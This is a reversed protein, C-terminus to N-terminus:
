GLRARVTQVLHDAVERITVDREGEVMIRLVPETGSYRVLIRGTGNLRQEGAEIAQRIEPLGALDCKEKVKVNVLVQPVATMARALESLPKQTRKM